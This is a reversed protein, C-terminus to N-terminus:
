PRCFSSPSPQRPGAAVWTRPSVGGLPQPLPAVLRRWVEGGTEYPVLHVELLYEPPQAPGAYPVGEDDSPVGLLGGALEGARAPQQRRHSFEPVVEVLNADGPVRLAMGKDAVLVRYLGHVLLLGVGGVDDALYGEVRCGDGAPGPAYPRPADLQRDVDPHGAGDAPLLEHPYGGAYAEPLRRPEELLVTVPEDPEKRGPTVAGVAQYFPQGRRERVRLAVDAPEVDVGEVLHALGLRPPALLQLADLRRLGGLSSRSSDWIICVNGESKSIARCAFSLANGSIAAPMPM